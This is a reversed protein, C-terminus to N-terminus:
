APEEKTPDTDGTPVAAPVPVGGVRRFAVRVRDGIQWDRTAPELTTMVVRHASDLEVDLVPYPATTRLLPSATRHVLTRAHVVGSPPVPRWHAGTGTCRDCVEQDLEFPEACEACFPMALEGREAHEFLPALATGEFSPALEPSVLWDAPHETM